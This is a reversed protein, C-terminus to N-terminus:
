DVPPLLCSLPYEPSDADNLTLGFYPSPDLTNGFVAENRYSGDADSMVISFHLHMAIDYSAPGGNYIGQYGILQGRRVPVERTGSPFEPAIYSTAGSESAMHTYYTWITEGPRLPDDHRIIVTSIWGEERTLWGDYAAYIPITGLPGLGFIDIGPHPNLINYPGYAANWPLGGVFGETPILFPYGPCPADFRTVLEARAAAQAAPHEWDFWRTIAENPPRDLLRGLLRQGISTRFLLVYGGLFLVFVIVLLLLVLRWRRRLFSTM